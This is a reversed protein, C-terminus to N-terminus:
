SWPWELAALDEGNLIVDGQGDSGGRGGKRWGDGGVWATERCYWGSINQEGSRRLLLPSCHELAQSWQLSPLYVKKVANFAKEEWYASM